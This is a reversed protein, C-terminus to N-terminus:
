QEFQDHHDGFLDPRLDAKKVKGGTAKEIAIAKIGSIPRRGTLWQSVMSQTVKVAIAFEQQTTTKIYDHLKMTGMNANSKFITLM